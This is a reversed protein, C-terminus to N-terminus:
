VEPLCLRRKENFQRLYTLLSIHASNPAPGVNKGHGLDILIDAM